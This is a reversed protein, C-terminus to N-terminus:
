DMPKMNKDLREVIKELRNVRTKESKADLYSGTYTRKVSQPMNLFNTYAPERGQLLDKFEEIQEEGIQVKVAADWKGNKKAQEIAALGQPQM